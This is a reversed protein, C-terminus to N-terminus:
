YLNGEKFSSVSLVDLKIHEEKTALFAKIFCGMKNLSVPFAM